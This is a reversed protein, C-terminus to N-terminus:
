FRSKREAQLRSSTCIPWPRQHALPHDLCSDKITLFCWWCVAGLVIVPILLYMGMGVRVVSLSHDTLCCSSGGHYGNAVMGHHWLLALCARWCLAHSLDLKAAGVIAFSVKRILETFCYICVIFLGILAGLPRDVSLMPAHWASQVTRMVRGVPSSCNGWGHAIFSKGRHKSSPCPDSWDKNLRKSINCWDPM